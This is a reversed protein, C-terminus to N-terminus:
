WNDFESIKRPVNDTTSSKTTSTRNQYTEPETRPCENTKYEPGSTSEDDINSLLKSALNMREANAQKESKYTNTLVEPNSNTEPKYEADYESKLHKRIYSNPNVPIYNITKTKVIEKAMPHKTFDLKNIRLMNHGRIVVLMEEDPFRLVEDPTLLLRKGEGESSQYTPIIEAIAFTRRQERTSQSVITMEGSRTSFYEATMEDTCGLMLQIDCNGIIESWLNNAYRNQLQGLSQVALMVRIGRSRCVSMTRAFDSGDSAGGIKGVNNFEDLVLNVPVDCCMNPQRDAYETLRIFLFSFFLSSIFKMTSDQDSTIVFYACKRKGPTTLDIDTKSVIGAVAPNQLVQLRSGLGSIINSCIKEGSQKFLSWAQRVNSTPDREIGAFYGCIETYSQTAYHYVTALNKEDHPISPNEMVFLIIAKLLNGEGNDWFKDGKGESTNGIIIDALKQALLTDVSGDALTIDSMANWSDSHLPDVLNYVKVEYGHQRLMEATDEYLEGKPDTIVVSEERKIIQFIAPRIISRSKRTGSAGFIAIHRNLRTDKPMCVAQGYKEGLIVGDTNNVSNLELVTKLEKKQMWEATGYTGKRSVSFGRDDGNVKDKSLYWLLYIIGITVIVFEIFLTSRGENSIAYLVCEIPNFDTAKMEITPDSLGGAANYENYNNRIQGIIGATYLLLLAGVIVTIIVVKQKQKTTFFSKLM